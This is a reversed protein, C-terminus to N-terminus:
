FTGIMNLFVGHHDYSLDTLDESFDTFNYGLGVKFHEGFYRYLTFLAGARREDLDPLDLMRGELSSEWHELFRWDTRLIYLHADNDFFDTNERELSVSSLRYAYKGGITWDDTLDYTLDISAIHSRQIFEASTGNQGVQDSSPVNYFYTYKVLADFRDHAIPRYAYGIVAEMFGGDFFDGQSSDSTAYNFKALLRGDENVQYKLNNRLLWTTRDSKSGDSQENKSFIYEFGSSISLGNFHYGVSLGGARRDTDANTRRDSTKGDEWNVGLTWRENPTWDIGMSRTLGTVAAHQYQNEVYVSASDSLRSRTGATLSGRREHLGDYGRENDLAYNLYLKTRESRQYTSGLQASTGIDGYSVEGDVALKDNIRFAGGIGGRNNEERDRTSHVTAQGFAYAKWNGKSDFDVQVVADTRDGVQQTLAVLTADDDREDHRVGTEIGWNETLQYSANVEITTTELGRDQVVRDGKALVEISDTIPLRVVGGYQDTETQTNLGPASYGAELRQGYLSLQGELGTWWDSFEVSLDARFGFADQTQSAGALPDEFSFGGDDSLLSTSVLGDSRSVQFKIWSGTSKRLTLDAAYLSSEPGGDENTRSATAGLKMYDTLWAHAQGGLNLTDIEDFGPTYEYQVVLVVDNGSLGDSRVLLRDDAIASLPQSLLVRGQLYDIDYDLEPQLTVVESVLGSVKDRIEIRLRESGILLDQRKLFYVSGGTGRFEERSPITGPDAAFGDFAFRRDGFPTTADSQYRANAGYLGREVLALENDGYRVIFNGWLLHDDGKNLKLFFKGLTPTLEEVSSEDGFTPYHYDPDLRRFLSDPSKDLFNSFLDEVAGERTDASATLKWDEGWKGNLFFALRGDAFSDLKTANNGDLGNSSDGSIDQSFTLDALGVFFWDNRALELDRLFLEGNGEDDLVAVEVTHVGAPLIAEGVFNGHEDVPLETGALWVSHNPPIGSGRVQVAGSSGLPINHVSPESEGYGALLADNRGTGADANQSGYAGSTDATDSADSTDSTGLTGETDSTVDRVVAADVERHPESSGTTRDPTLWLSQPATEDFLGNEGYVRLVFKIPRLPSGVNGLTPHWQAIGRRGVKAIALPDSRLSQDLEFIRIEAREIYHPYNNYMRFRVPQGRGDAITAPEATVSLRRESALDDFRFVIDTDDLAVDTCRQIDASSRGPDDIPEGDVTIRMLNLALPNQPRLERTIETIEIGDYDDMVALEDYVVQVIVHSTDGQLFGGNVIDDSHIFGRGEHEVQSDSLELQSQLREMTRRARAASLGIDDGYVDAVRRSLRENRTYGIFRLRVRDEDALNEMARRLQDPFTSPIQAEGDSIMLPELRGWPPDYVRTVTEADAPDPCIQFEDELELLPDDHWFEVEIRRNLARGRPTANSAVPRAAGRGDSAIASTTLGLADKVELSVRHARAKSIALHTGYIRAARGTLPVDDTHAIFKVTVNQKDRLNFFAEQIQRLFDDPLDVLEDGYDLPPILNKIRARREHGERYRLKCVTETRCVKFRKIEQSIVVEEIKTREGVEDYWVEVEVRRNLARGEATSNSGIPKSDGAWAFSISEPPLALAVQLFEAVEGARERSLGENDGFLQSLRASLAQNDSHGIMHLRVNELGQMDDLVTRLKAVYEPSINVVGSEFHIPPVVKTLKITEIELATVEREELRDGLQASLVEPDMTWETVDSDIPLHREGSQGSPPATLGPPGAGVPPLRNELSSTPGIPQPKTPGGNRWYIEIEVTLPQGGRKKWQNRIEREIAKLRQKVLDPDEIDALYSLRLIAEAKELEDILLGIRPKWQARMETSGPEFVADAMDLGIVRHISAGFKFRLVKGRTARKVQTQRTSMRYGSPLSRDDLKLVFNSGRTENPVIACTIHFRGHRDTNVALGRVSMLRVGPLGLEGEDQVGDRNRDDFVKGIVDTCDFTLDPVVRVTATAVGSFALGTGSNFAQARNVFEGETVGAGVALLLVVTRRSLPPLDGIPWILERGNITPETEVGDLRASGEIYRFGAPYVDRLSLDVLPAGLLNNFTITYPVLDGRSVNIAPTTKTIAVAGGLVPDLPIHNNFAQSSGVGLTDDLRLYLHYGASGPAVAPTPAFESTQIECHQATAPIADAGAGPCAPVAFPAALPDNFDILPPIIQSVGTAFGTGPPVVEVVYDGPSPCSADSFNLHFKYYGDSGTIQGQQNPDDFCASSVPTLSTADLLSLRAGSVPTRLLSEYVVGQPDIPLNLDQLNSGPGILLVSISQLGDTFASETRGLAASNAGADPARFRIEYADGNLDNPAIGTMQYAGSSDTLVSQVPQGNRYLEVIWGTLALEAGSQLRNFDADHWLAGSLAGVGPVGGIALTVSVSETQAPTNWTVVGTNTVPTGIALGGAIDARFRLVATAGPPLPGYLASWDGTIVSGLVSIGAPLGGLTASGPVLTLQGPFPADLDDTIVVSQADVTALNTVRVEYELQSGTLAPGGGVVAVSKTIALAQADGVVVVTPEPGTSPNGDGDTLLNTAETTNVVAQNSILTGSAVGANVLLDFEIVASEGPTLVGGGAPPLPPTQDSSAIPIGAALPSGGGDPVGVPLGNLLLSDAVWTTNAPVADVLTAATAPVTGDNYVSITYHLVDGPDVQGLTNGDVGIVVQKPAFLLPANGVVDRTPDDATTTGPDDSPQDVVGSTVASVFAQNSIITGDAATPDVLVNFSLTAIQNGTASMAGPTPDSPANILIGLALPLQGGAGDAVITGNLTTTGAIYTTNVPLTDRLTSDTAAATGINEVTITYRMREGALLLNPDGELYTSTKLIQFTSASLIPVVTPDEDGSVLPDAPGNLVPDDSLAFPTDAVRLESQNTALTGAPLVAALQVEFEVVVVDGLNFLGLNRVNLIGSGAAGGFSNTPTTDAGAPASTVVLTGPEFVATPNLADLEDFLAFDNPGTTALNEVRLTYRLTDGPTASTAPSEGTTVNVVTKEFIVEPLSTAVTHADEHDLTGATGDTLVRSFTRVDGGTMPDTEDASKWETAGAVNTLVVGDQTDADLQTEYSVILRETAGVVGAASLITIDFDCDPAPRFGVAYDTGQALVGSVPTTGDAEFVQVSLVTPAVDCLGGTAGDPLLDALKLSWAPATGTNQANLMFVDPTGVAMAVPGSKELTFDDPGVITMPGTTGPLGPLQNIDIGDIPNYLYSATNSFALGTINILTDELVVTVEIVVQEGAPIDIGIAPDEIVVNTSTGTNVPTWPGSGSIKTVDVFRLDAASATLDDTIQVDYLDFPHPTEPVTIRYQFREGVSATAQTNAKILPPAPVSAIVVRTPDEDGVVDPDAQGNVNPDDSDAIQVPNLLDAQNTLVLGDALGAAVTIDFQILIESNAPVNLNRIDVIGAGNTGGNPDTNSTDAGPPVTGAVLALTGSDFVATANLVGLDDFFTFGNLASDTTQLRLSYRLADGPAATSAPNAGSTLNEVSKEFFFGTLATTVTHADEHDLTGVTGNSLTRVFATRNPNSADGNFWETAGAVNTLATSDQTDPDLQTRYTIILRENPSITADSSVMRLTLECTPAGVYSLSYDGASLSGKGPVPTVGDAAFVQASLVSPTTDCMGGGVGDPLRDVITTNWADTTGSNQVDLTFDGSAGLNLTAPGTKTFVLEPAAITLPPTIGWEGPLPSYFVGDILRGFDWKGTNIFQTGVVNGPSADLVVTLEIIIQEGATVISFNEFTLLGGVNSFTHPVPAGSSELYAVHSVYTLDAGTENLNDTLRISHLDNPSGFNNIVTGTAPDFLVPMTLTYTFPVGIAATTQGTPNQKDIKEVPILLNQCDDQIQTSSGNTFWIIHGAVINCAMQGTHVVNDFVVLWREDTQGPQTKFSFNTDLPNSAPFNRITCDRDIQIQSPAIDGAFGDLVGNPFDSCDAAEASSAAGLILVLTCLLLGIRSGGGKVSIRGARIM